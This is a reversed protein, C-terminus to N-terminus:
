EKCSFSFNRRIWERVSVTQDYRLVNEQATPPQFNDAVLAFDDDRVDYRLLTKRNQQLRARAVNEPVDVYIVQSPVGCKEAIARVTDRQERTFNGAEYVVPAGTGLSQEIRRYTEEYTIDWDAASIRKGDLGLGREGNIADMEVYIAELAGALERALTSKGVFPLGCLIYLCPQSM